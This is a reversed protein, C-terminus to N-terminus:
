HRHAQTKALVVLQNGLLRSDQRGLHFAGPEGEAAEGESVEDAEPQEAPLAPLMELTVGDGDEDPAIVLTRGDDSVFRMQM